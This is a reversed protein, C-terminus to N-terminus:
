LFRDNGELTQPLNRGKWSRIYTSILTFYLPSNLEFPFSSVVDGTSSPTWSAHMVMKFLNNSFKNLHFVLFHCPCPLQFWFCFLFGRVTIINVDSQSVTPVDIQCNRIKLHLLAPYGCCYNNFIIQCVLQCM